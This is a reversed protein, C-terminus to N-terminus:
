MPFLINELWYDAISSFDILNIKGDLNIDEPVGLYPSNVTTRSGDNDLNGDFKYHVTPTEAITNGAYLNAIDTHSLTTDYFRLDDVAMQTKGGHLGNNYTGINIGNLYSGYHRPCETVSGYSAGNVFAESEALGDATDQTTIVVHQWSGTANATAIPKGAQMQLDGNKLTIYLRYASSAQVISYTENDMPQDYIKVWFSITSNRFSGVLFDDIDIWDGEPGSENFRVAQNFNGTEYSATGEVSGSGSTNPDNLVMAMATDDTVTGDFMWDWPDLIEYFDDMGVYGDGTIDGLYPSQLAFPPRAVILDFLLAGDVASGDNTPDQVDITIAINTVDSLNVDPFDALDINWSAWDVSKVAPMGYPEDGDYVSTNSAATSDTLTISLAVEDNDTAGKFQITLAEENGGQLLDWTGSSSVTVDADNYAVEMSQSSNYGELALSANSGWVAQLGSDDVYSEFSDIPSVATFSLVDSSGVTSDAYECDVAWYYTQGVILGTVDLAQERTLTAELVSADRSQVLAESGLYVRQEVLESNPNYGHVWRLTTAGGSLVAAGDDVPQFYWPTNPDGDPRTFAVATTTGSAADALTLIVRSAGHDAILKGEDIYGQLVPVQSVDTDGGNVQLDASDCIDVTGSYAIELRNSVYHSSDNLQLLSENYPACPDTYDPEGGVRTFYSYAGRDSAISNGNLILSGGASEKDPRTGGKDTPGVHIHRYSDMIADNNLVIRGIKNVYDGGIYVYDPRLKGSEIYLEGDPLPPLGTMRVNGVYLNDIVVIEDDLGADNLADFICYYSQYDNNIQARYNGDAPVVNLDWNSSIGWPAGPACPDVPVGQWNATVAGQMVSCFLFLSILVFMVKKMIVGGSCVDKITEKM